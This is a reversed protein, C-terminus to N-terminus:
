LYVLWNFGAWVTATQEQESYKLPTETQTVIQWNYPLTNRIMVNGIKGNNATCKHEAFATLIQNPACISWLNHTTTRLRHLHRSTVDFYKEVTEKWITRMKLRTLAAVDSSEICNPYHCLAESDNLGFCQILVLTDPCLISYASAYWSFDNSLCYLILGYCQILALTDPCLMWHASYYRSVCQILVLTDPRFMSYASSYRSVLDFLCQLTLYFCQFATSYWSVVSFFCQLTIVCCQVSNASHWAVFDDQHIETWGVGWV